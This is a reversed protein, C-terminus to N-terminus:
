NSRDTGHPTPDPAEGGGFEYYGRRRNKHEVFERHKEADMGTMRSVLYIAGLGAHVLDWLEEMLSGTDLITVGDPEICEAVEELEEALKAIQDLLTSDPDTSTAVLRHLPFCYFRQESM